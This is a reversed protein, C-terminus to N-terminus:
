FLRIMEQAERRSYPFSRRERRRITVRAGKKKLLSLIKKRKKLYDSESLMNEATTKRTRFSFEFYKKKYDGLLHIIKRNAVDKGYEGYALSKDCVLALMVLRISKSSLDEGFCKGLHKSLPKMSLTQGKDWSPKAVEVLDSLASIQGVSFFRSLHEARIPTVRSRVFDQLNVGEGEEKRKAEEELEKALRKVEHKAEEEEKALRREERKAERKAEEEKALRKEERTMVRVVEREKKEEEKALRREERKAEREEEKALRREERKAERKAEEEEKALRMEERTMWRRARKAEREEEKAPEKRKTEREEEANAADAKRRKELIKADAKRRKELIKWRAHCKEKSREPVNLVVTEWAGGGRLSRGLRGIANALMGDECPTWSSNNM